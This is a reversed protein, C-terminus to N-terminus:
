YEALVISRCDASPVQLECPVLLSDHDWKEGYIGIIVPTNRRRNPKLGGINLMFRSLAAREVSAQTRVHEVWRQFNISDDIMVGLYWIFPESKIDHDGGRLTPLWTEVRKRSTILVAKVHNLWSIKRSPASHWRDRLAGISTPNDKNFFCYVIKEIIQPCIRTPM